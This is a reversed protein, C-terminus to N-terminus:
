GNGRMKHYLTGYNDINDAVVSIIWEKGNFQPKGQQKMPQGTNNNIIVNPPINNSSEGSTVAQVGLKGNIRTLPMVAEAGAEGMLGYGRAMPFYTPSEVIGGYAYPTVAGDSFVRGQAAYSSM